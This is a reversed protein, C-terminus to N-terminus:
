VRYLEGDIFIEEDWGVGLSTISPDNLKIRGLIEDNLRVQDQLTDQVYYEDISDDDAM